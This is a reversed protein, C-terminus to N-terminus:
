HYLFLPVSSERLMTRTVSGSFFERLTSRGSSGMVLLGAQVQHVYQLLAHAYSESTALTHAQAVVNHGQLFTVAREVCRDAHEQHADVCVVHVEHSDDLGLAQFMHLARTAHTSGDYAILVARGEPLTAPVTVVPCPSQKMVMSLTDDPTDQTEFHFFTHQGLMILDYQQAELLIHEAPLGTDKLIQCTVGAEACRQACHELFQEVKHSADALLTADHHVKYASGGLPVPQPKCITPADIIGLGVLVAGSHQAWQIGLEVAAASYVSGDLGVLISRLMSEKEKLWVGDSGFEQRLVREVTL